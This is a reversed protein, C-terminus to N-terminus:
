SGVARDERRSRRQDKLDRTKVKAQGYSTRVLERGGSWGFVWSVLLVAFIVDWASVILQQAVSYATANSADTSDSLAATNM